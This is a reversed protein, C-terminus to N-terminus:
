LVYRREKKLSLLGVSDCFKFEWESGDEHYVCTSDGTTIRSIICIMKASQM